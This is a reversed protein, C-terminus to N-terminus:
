EINRGSFLVVAIGEDEEENEEVMLMEPCAALTDDDDPIFLNEEPANIFEIKKQDNWLGGQVLAVDVVLSNEVSEELHWQYTDTTHFHHKRSCNKHCRFNM